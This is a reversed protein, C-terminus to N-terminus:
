YLFDLIVCPGGGTGDVYKITYSIQGHAMKPVHSTLLKYVLIGCLPPMFAM